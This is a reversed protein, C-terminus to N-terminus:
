PNTNEQSNAYYLRQNSALYQSNEIKPYQINKYKYSYEQCKNERWLAYKAGM